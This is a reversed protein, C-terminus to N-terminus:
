GLTPINNISGQFCMEIVNWDFNMCKWELFEMEFHRSIPLCKTETEIHWIREVNNWHKCFIEQSLIHEHSAIMM